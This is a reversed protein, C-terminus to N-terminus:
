IMASNKTKTTITTTAAAVSKKKQRRIREDFVMEVMKKEFVIEPM